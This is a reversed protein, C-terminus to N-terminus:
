FGLKNTDLKGFTADDLILYQYFATSSLFFRVRTRDTDASVSYGLPVTYYDTGRFRIHIGSISGMPNMLDFVTDPYSQSTLFVSVVTPTQSQVSFTGAIFQALNPADAVSAVTQEKYSYSGTGSTALDTTQSSVIVKNAYNDALSGFELSDYTVPQVGTGDDTFDKYAINYQWGRSWWTIQSAIAFVYAQETNVVQQFLELAPYDDVAVADTNSKGTSEVNLQVGALTCVEGARTNTATGAAWDVSVRARGLEAIADEGYLAWSDMNTVIGYNTQADSVRFVWAADNIGVAVTIRLYDGINITPLSGPVRGTIECTGPRLNDSVTRRGKTLNVTQVNSIATYTLSGAPRHEVTWTPVTM